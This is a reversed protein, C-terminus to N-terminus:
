TPSRSQIREPSRGARADAERRPVRGGPALPRRVTEPDHRRRGGDGHLLVSSGRSRWTSRPHRRYSGPAPGDGHVVPVDVDQDAAQFLTWRLAPRRHLVLPSSARGGNARTRFSREVFARGVSGKTARCRGSSVRTWRCRAQSSSRPPCGACSHGAPTSEIGPYTCLEGTQCGAQSFSSCRARSSRGSATDVRRADSRRAISGHWSLSPAAGRTGLCLCDSPSFSGPTGAPSSPRCAGATDPHPDTESCRSGSSGLGQGAACRTTWWPMSSTPSGPCSCSSSSGGSHTLVGVRQRSSAISAQTTGPPSGARSCSSPLSGSVRAVSSGAASWLESCFSARARSASRSRISCFTSRRRPLSM